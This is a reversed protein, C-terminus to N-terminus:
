KSRCTSASPVGDVPTDGFLFGGSADGTQAQHWITADESNRVFIGSNYRKGNAIPTFKWEVHFVCDGFEKNWRPWTTGATAKACSPEPRPTSRGSRCRASSAPPRFRCGRGARSTRDPMRWCTPGAALPSSWPRPTPDAARTFAAALGLSLVVGLVSGLIRAM